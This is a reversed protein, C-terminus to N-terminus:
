CGLIEGAILIDTPAGAAAVVRNEGLHFLHNGGEADGAFLDHEDGADAAGAPKGVVHVGVAHVGDVAAGRRQAVPRLDAPGVQDTQTM